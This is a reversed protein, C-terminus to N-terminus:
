LWIVYRALLQEALPGDAKIGGAIETWQPRGTAVLLYAPATGVVRDDVDGVSEELRGRGEEVVVDRTTGCPHELELRIRADETIGARKVAGWGSFELAQHVSEALAEPEAELDLPRDLAVRLDFLHIYADLLRNKMLDCVTKVGPPGASPAGWGPEDLAKIRALQADTARVLEDLIESTSWHARAAISAATFPASSEFVDPVELPSAPQPFGEFMSQGAGVHAALDRVSWGECPTSLAWQEPGLPELTRRFASWTQALAAM